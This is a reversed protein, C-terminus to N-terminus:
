KNRLEFLTNMKFELSDDSDKLTVLYIKDNDLQFSDNTFRKYNEHRKKFRREKKKSGLNRQKVETEISNLRIEGLGLEYNGTDRLNYGTHVWNTYLYGSNDYLKLSHYWYGKRGGTFESIIEPENSTILIIGFAIYISFIKM